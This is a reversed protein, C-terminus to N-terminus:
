TEGEVFQRRSSGGPGGSWKEQEERKQVMRGVSELHTEQILVGM